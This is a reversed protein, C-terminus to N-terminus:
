HTRTSGKSVVSKRGASSPTSASLGKSIESAEQQIYHLLEDDQMQAFAGPAGVEKREIFMGLVRAMDALAGKKDLLKFKTRKVDRADEGRGDKYEEVTIEGIAAGTERDLRSLDVYADGNEGVRVYDMMNAFGIKAMEGLVREKTIALKEVAIQTAKIEIESARNLLEAVRKQISKNLSLTSANGRNPSYGALVYAEAQSKGAALERAFREHKANKLSPM